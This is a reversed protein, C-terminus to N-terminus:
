ILATRKLTKYVWKQIGQLVEYSTMGYNFFLTLRTTFTKSNEAVSINASIYAANVKFCHDLGYKQVM